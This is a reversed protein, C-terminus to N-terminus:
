IESRLYILFAKKNLYKQFAEKKSVGFYSKKISVESFFMEKSVNSFKTLFIVKFIDFFAMKSINFSTITMKSTLLAVLNITVKGKFKIAITTSVMEREPFEM